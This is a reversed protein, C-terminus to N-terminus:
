GQLTLLEVAPRSLLRLQPAQGRELGVGPAVVIRNGNVTHFGGRAVDGSVHSLTMLPGLLPLVVQGGHTHGAVTLDVRSGPPLLLVPDPRHSLLIRIAGDEPETVLREHMAASAATRYDLRNGGLRIHRDGVTIDVVTDDVIHIGTGALSRDARNGPDADGRVFWVGAPARLRGLQARLEPLEHAFAGEEGQFLDGPLLILDPRFALLDGIARREKPGIDFTQFDSMVAIRVPDDGARAPDIPVTFRDVRLWYPEVHTMYFGLPALLLLLVLVAIGSRNAPRLRPIALLGLALLPLSVVMGLYVLHIMGFGELPGALLVFMAAVGFLATAAVGTVIRPQRDASGRASLATVGLGVAAAVVAILTLEHTLGM